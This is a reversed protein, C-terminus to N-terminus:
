KAFTVLQQGLLALGSELNLATLVGDMAYGMQVLTSAVEPRMGVLVSTTGMLKAMRGTEALIRAVYTDVTDLGTIDMVLGSAGTKEIAALVDTQFAQAVDDRLEVHVTTILTKGIRLIPISGQV